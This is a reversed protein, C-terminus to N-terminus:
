SAQGFHSCGTTEASEISDPSVVNKIKKVLFSPEECKMEALTM